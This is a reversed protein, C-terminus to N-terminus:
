KVANMALCVIFYGATVIKVSLRKRSEQSVPKRYPELCHGFGLLINPNVLFLDFRPLGGSWKDQVPYGKNEM